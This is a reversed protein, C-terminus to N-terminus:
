KLRKHGSDNLISPLLNNLIGACRSLVVDQHEMVRGLIEISDQGRSLAKNLYTEVIACERGPQKRLALLLTRGQDASMPQIESKVTSYSVKPADRWKGDHTIFTLTQSDEHALKLTKDTGRAFFSITEAYVFNDDVVFDAVLRNIGKFNAVDHHHVDAELTIEIDNKLPSTATLEIRIKDGIRVSKDGIVFDGYLGGKLKFKQALIANRKYKSGDEDVAPPVKEVGNVFVKYFLQPQVRQDIMEVDLYIRGSIDYERGRSNKGELNLFISGEGKCDGSTLEQPIKVGKVLNISFDHTSDGRGTYCWMKSTDVFRSLDIGSRLSKVQLFDGARLKPILRIDTYHPKYEIPQGNLYFQLFDVARQQGKEGSALHFYVTKSVKEDVTRTDEAHETELKFGLQTLVDTYVIKGDVKKKFTSELLLRGEKCDVHKATITFEIPFSVEGFYEGKEVKLANSWAYFWGCYLKAKQGSFDKALEPSLSLKVTDGVSFYGFENVTHKRFSEENQYTFSQSVEAKSNNKLVLFGGDVEASVSNKLNLTNAFEGFGTIVLKEDVGVLEEKMLEKTLDQIDVELIKQNKNKQNLTLAAMAVLDHMVITNMTEYDNKLRLGEWEKGDIFVMQREGDDFVITGTNFTLSINPLLSDKLPEIKGPTFYWRTSVLKTKLVHALKPSNKKLEDLKKEIRDIGDLDRFSKLIQEIALTKNETASIPISITNENSTSGGVGGAKVLSTSMGILVGLFGKFVRYKNM